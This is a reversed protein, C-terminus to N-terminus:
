AVSGVPIFCLVKSCTLRASILRHMIDASPTRTGRFPLRRGGKMASLKPAIVADFDCPYFQKYKLPDQRADDLCIEMQVVPLSM